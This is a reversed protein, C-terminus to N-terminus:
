FKIKPELISSAKGDPSYNSSTSSQSLMSIVNSFSQVKLFIILEQKQITKVNFKLFM